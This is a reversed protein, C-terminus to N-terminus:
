SYRSHALLAGLEQKIGPRSGFVLLFLAERALRQAHEGALISSSGRAVVLAAAARLALECAAARAVPMAQPGAEDLATRAAALEADLVSPGIMACCRAIVGLALSGNSRLGAADLEQWQALPMIGTIRQDPVFHELFSLEVTRSAMVAVMPLPEPQLSAAPPSVDILGWVVNGAEDRAAAHLTDILGWGTVWPSSGEFLYGGDVRIARLRPPGPLTGALAVGARRQGRCLPELWRERLAVDPSAAVARVAGRHQLWVFATSLCGSALVEIVRCADPLELGLGGAAAPGALGYFGEAALLDLHSAPMQGSAEVEMAAPLLVQDAIRGARRIILEPDM